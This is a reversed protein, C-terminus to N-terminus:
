IYMMEAMRSMKKPIHVFLDFYGALEETSTDDCDVSVSSEMRAQISCSNNCTNERKNTFASEPQEGVVTKTCSPDYSSLDRLDDASVSPKLSRSNSKYSSTKKVIGSPISFKLNVKKGKNRDEELILTPPKLYFLKSNELNLKAPRLLPKKGIKNEKPHLKLHRIDRIKKRAKSLSTVFSPKKAHVPVHSFSRSRM